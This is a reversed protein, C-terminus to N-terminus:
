MPTITAFRAQSALLTLGGARSQCNSRLQQEAWGLALLLPVVLFTRTEHERIDTWSWNKYYYEALLRIRRLADTLEDAASVRLGERILFALLVDDDVAQTPAPEGTSPRAPAELLAASATLNETRMTQYITGMRLGVAPHPQPPVHWEVFRYAALDWGDFDRLWDKDGDGGVRGDREVVRGAALFETLGRKLLVIDGAAVQAMAARQSDGGVFAMGSRYFYETYDRGEAGASVVWTTM